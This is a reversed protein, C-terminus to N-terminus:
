KNRGKFESIAENYFSIYNEVCIDMDFNQAVISCNSKLANYYEKDSILKEMADEFGAVTPKGNGAVPVIIGAAKGEKQIMQPIEGVNTSIVPVDLCVSEIITNPLCDDWTPLLMADFTKMKILANEVYGCFNIGNENEYKAILINMYDSSPYVLDLMSNKITNNRLGIYSLIAIEWGKAEVGRGIMGFVFVDNNKEISKTKVESIEDGPSGIYIKKKFIELNRDATYILMRSKLLVKTAANLFVHDYDLSNIDGKACKYLYDEYPGHMSIVHPMNFHESLYKDTEWLHSNVIEIKEQKLYKKLKRIQKKGIVNDRYEKIGFKSVLGKLNWLFFDQVKGPQWRFVITIKKYEEGLVLELRKIMDEEKWNFLAFLYVKHGKKSLSKALHLVFNEAGGTFFNNLGLLIKM